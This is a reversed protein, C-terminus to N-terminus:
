LHFFAGCSVEFQNSIIDREDLEKDEDDDIRIVRKRPPLEFGTSKSIALSSDDTCDDVDSVQDNDGNWREKM